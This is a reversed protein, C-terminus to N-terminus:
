FVLDEDGPDGEAPIRWSTTDVGPNEFFLTPHPHGSMIRAASYFERNIDSGLVAQLLAREAATFTKGVVQVYIHYHGPEKSPITHSIVQGFGYDRLYATLRYARNNFKQYAEESDIDLLLEDPFPLRVVQGQDAAQGVAAEFTIDIPYYDPHALDLNNIDDLNLMSKLM